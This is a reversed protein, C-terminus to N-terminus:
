YLVGNSTIYDVEMKKYKKATRRNPITWVGVTLGAMHFEKITTHSVSTYKMSIGDIGSEKMKSIISDRMSSPLNKRLYMTSISNKLGLRRAMQAADSLAKFDFSLIMAPRDGILRFLYKLAKKSLRHKLEVVPVAGRSYHFIIDLAQDATPIKQDKFRRVRSGQRITYQDLSCRDIKRIDEKEGCMRHINEDHMILLLPDQKASYKAEWIDFEVGYFGKKKAALKIAALTNEPAKASLGRHAIYATKVTKNTM